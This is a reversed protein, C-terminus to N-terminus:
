DVNDVVGLTKLMLFLHHITPMQITADEKTYWDFPEYSTQAIIENTTKLYTDDELSWPEEEFALIHDFQANTKKDWNGLVVNIKRDFLKGGLFKKNKRITLSYVTFHEIYSYKTKNEDENQLQMEEAIMAALPVCTVGVEDKIRKELQILLSQIAVPHIPTLILINM